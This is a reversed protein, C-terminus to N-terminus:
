EAIFLIIEGRIDIESPKFNARSLLYLWAEMRTWPDRGANGAGVYSHKFIDRSVCFVNQPGNHDAAGVM